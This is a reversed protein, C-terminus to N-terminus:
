ASTGLKEKKTPHTEPIVRGDDCIHLTLDQSSELATRGELTVRVLCESVLDLANQTSDHDPLSDRAGDVVLKSGEITM